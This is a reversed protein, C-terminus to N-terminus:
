NIGRANLYAGLPGDVLVEHNELWEKLFVLMEETLQAEGQAMQRNWDLVKQGLTDHQAKHQAYDPYNYKLM